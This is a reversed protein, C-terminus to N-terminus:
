LYRERLIRVHHEVHGAIIYAVARVTFPNDSAIGRRSWAEPPMNKFLSITALRVKRFEDLHASWAIKDAEAGAAAINQDYSPLPAEFGRAFWLARFAFARESDTIHNLVQRISWKEPEYRHLSSQESIGTFLAQADELQREIVAMVDDGKVQNIYTFYYPAAENEFPRGTMDPM